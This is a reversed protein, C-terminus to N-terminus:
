CNCILYAVQTNVLRRYETLMGVVGPDYKFVPVDFSCNEAESYPLVARLPLESRVTLSPMGVYQIARDVPDKARDKLWSRSKRWRQVGLPAIM